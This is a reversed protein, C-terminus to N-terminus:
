VPETRPEMEKLESLQSERLGGGGAGGGGCCTFAVLLASLVLTRLTLPPSCRKSSAPNLGVTLGMLWKM